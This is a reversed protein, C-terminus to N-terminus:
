FRVVYRKGRFGKVTVDVADGAPSVALVHGDHNTVVGHQGPIAGRKSRQVQVSMRM